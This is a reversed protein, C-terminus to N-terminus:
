SILLFNKSKQKSQIKFAYIYASLIVERETNFFFKRLYNPNLYM